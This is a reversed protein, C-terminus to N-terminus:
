REDNPIILNEYLRLGIENGAKVEVDKALRYRRLGISATLFQDINADSLPRETSLPVIVGAEYGVYVVHDARESSKAAITGDDRRAISESDMGILHGNVALSRGNPLILHDFKLEMVGPSRRHQPRVYSVTGYIQTGRPLGMYEDAKTDLRGMWVDGAKSKMSALTTELTFPIVKDAQIERYNRVPRLPRVEIVPAPPPPNNIIVPPAPPPTPPTAPPLPDAQRKPLHYDTSSTIDVEHNTQDWNVFAGLSESVFRLPVMTVGDVLSAAVDMRTSERNISADLQGITLRVRIGEKRATITQNSPNWDVTAGLKEFVGRLPVMVRGDTETPQQTGFHIRDGDVLVRIAPQDTQASAVAASFALAALSILKTTKM